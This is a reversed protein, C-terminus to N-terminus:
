ASIKRFLDTINRLNKDGALYSIGRHIHLRFQTALTENSLGLKDDQCRQKLLALYLGEYNGGFTKWTMEVNSDAPIDTNPPVSSEALSICLGWRCLTNWNQIGTRRKLRILQEKALQSLKINEIPHIM